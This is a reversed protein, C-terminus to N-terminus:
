APPRYKSLFKAKLDEWTRISASPKNRLWRSAARTLSMPFARLMIHDQTINPIHFLDVIELVKEIHENADEHDSGSFTNDQLEKFFQGKLEFHYKDDIKPRTVGSGYDGRTKCMYEEMNKAMTEAVEEKSNEELDSFLDFEPSSSEDLSPTKFLQFPPYVILLIPECSLFCLFDLVYILYSSYSEVIIDSSRYATNLANSYATDTQQVSYSSRRQYVKRLGEERLVKYHIAGVMTWSPDKLTFTLDGLANPTCSKIVGVVTELKGNKCYNKMDGLCGAAMVGEANLYDVVSLWPGRTFQDDESADEIIKRVYEQTPMVYEPGGEM